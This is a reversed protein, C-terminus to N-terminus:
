VSLCVSLNAKNESFSCQFFTYQFFYQAVLNFQISDDPFNLHFGLDTNVELKVKFVFCLFRFSFGLSIINLSRSSYVKKIIFSLLTFDFTCRTLQFVWWNNIESDDLCFCSYTFSCFVECEVNSVWRQSGYSHAYKIQFSCPNFHPSTFISGCWVMM